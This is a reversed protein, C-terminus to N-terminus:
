YEQLNTKRGTLIDLHGWGWFQDFYGGVWNEDGQPWKAADVKWDEDAAGEVLNVGEGSEALLAMVDDDVSVSVQFSAYDQDFVQIRWGAEDFRGGRRAARHSGGM